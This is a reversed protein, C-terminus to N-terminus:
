LAFQANPNVRLIERVLDMKSVAQVIQKSQGVYETSEATRTVTAGKLYLPKGAADLTSSDKTAVFTDGKENVRFTVCEATQPDFKDAPVWVTRGTQQTTIMYKLGTRTSILQTAAILESLMKM